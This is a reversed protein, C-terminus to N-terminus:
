ATSERSGFKGEPRGRGAFQRHQGGPQARVCRRSLSSRLLSPWSWVTKGYARGAMDGCNERGQRCLRFSVSSVFRVAGSMWCSTKPERLAIRGARFRERGVSDRGGCARSAVTVVCSRGEQHAPIPLVYAMESNRYLPINERSCTSLLAFCGPMGGDNQLAAFRRRAVAARHIGPEISCM